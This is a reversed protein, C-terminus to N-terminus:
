SFGMAYVLAQLAAWALSVPVALLYDLVPTVILLLFLLSSFGRFKEFFLNFREPLLGSLIWSGDLPPIPILNLCGLVLSAYFAQKLFVVIVVLWRALDPGVLSVPASPIAFGLWLSEPWFIQVFLLIGGLLVFCLMAFLLNVAPGAFAVRMHDKQPDKFNRPDVPVPKAWGFVMGAQQFLLIAPLIISGFLDLHQIPNLTLRGQREATDDGLKWAAWAHGYEHFSFSVLLIIIFLVSTIAQPPSYQNKLLAQYREAQELKPQHTMALQFQEAARDEQDTELLAVGYYYYFESREPQKGAAAWFAELAGASDGTQYKALAVACDFAWATDPSGPSAQELQDLAAQSDGQDLLLAQSQLGPEVEALFAYGPAASAATGNTLWGLLALAYFLTFFGGLGCALASRIGLRKKQFIAVLGLTLAALHLLPIWAALAFGFGANVVEEGAPTRSAGPAHSDPALPQPQIGRAQKYIALTYSVALIRAVAMVAARLGNVAPHNPSTQNNLFFNEAFALAGWALGVLLAPPNLALTKVALGLAPFFKREAIIAAFWFLMIASYPIYIIAFLLPNDAFGAQQLHGSLILAITIVSIFLLALLNAGTIRWYHKQIAAFFGSLDWNEQSEQQEHIGGYLGAFLVPVFFIRVAWDLLSEFPNGPFIPQVSAYSDYAFYWVFMLFVYGGYSTLSGVRTQIEKITM